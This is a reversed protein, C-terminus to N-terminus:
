ETEDLVELELGAVADLLDDRRAAIDGVRDVRALGVIREGYARRRRAALERDRSRRRRRALRAEAAVRCAVLGRERPADFFFHELRHRAQFLAAFRRRDDVEDIEHHLARDLAL